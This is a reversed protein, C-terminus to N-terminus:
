SNTPGSGRANWHRSCRYCPLSKAVFFLCYSNLPPAPITPIPSAKEKPVMGLWGDGGKDVAALGFASQCIHAIVFLIQIISLNDIILGERECIQTSVLYIFKDNKYNFFILENLTKQKTINPFGVMFTFFGVM